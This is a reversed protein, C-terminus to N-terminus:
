CAMSQIHKLLWPFFLIFISGPLLTPVLDHYAGRVQRFGARWSRYLSAGRFARTPSAAGPLDTMMDFADFFCLSLFPTGCLTSGGWSRLVDSPFREPVGLRAFCVMTLLTLIGCFILRQFEWLVFTGPVVTFM